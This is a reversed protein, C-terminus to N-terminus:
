SAATAPEGETLLRGVIEVIQVSAQSIHDELAVTAMDAKRQRCLEILQMHEDHAQQRIPANMVQFRFYRESKEHLARVMNLTLPRGAPAYLREHLRWNLPGWQAAEAEDMEAVTASARQLDQETLNPVAERLLWPELKLRIEFFERVEALSIMSVFAGRHPVLDLLGETSLLRIAERLPIRSVGLEEALAEQRLPLGPAISGSLIRSRLEEVVLEVATKRQLRTSVRESTDEDNSRPDSREAHKLAM